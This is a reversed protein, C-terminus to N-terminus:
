YTVSMLLKKFLKNEFNRPILRVLLLPPFELRKDQGIVLPLANFHQHFKQAYTIMKPVWINKVLVWTAHPHHGALMKTHCYAMDETLYELERLRACPM